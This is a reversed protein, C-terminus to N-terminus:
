RFALHARLRLDLQVDDRVRGPFGRRAEDGRELRLEGLLRELLDPVRADLGHVVEPEDDVARLAPGRDDDVRDDLRLQALRHPVEAAARLEM